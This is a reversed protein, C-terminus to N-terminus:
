YVSHIVTGSATSCAMAWAVSKLRSTPLPSTTNGLQPNAGSFKSGVSVIMMPMVAPVINPTHSPWSIVSCPMPLPTDSIMKAPIRDDTGNWIMRRHCCGIRSAIKMKMVMAVTVSITHTCSPWRLIGTCYPLRTRVM